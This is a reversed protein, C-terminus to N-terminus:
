VIICKLFHKNYALCQALPNIKLFINTECCLKSDSSNNNGYVTPVSYNIFLQMVFVHKLQIQKEHKDNRMLETKFRPQQVEQNRTEM